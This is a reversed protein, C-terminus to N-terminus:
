QWGGKIADVIQAVEEVKLNFHCPLCVHHADWYRQNPLDQLGGFIDNRDIGNHVVSVPINKGKMMKIFEARKEVLITYLWNASGDHRRVLKVDYLHDDYYECLVKRKRKKAFWGNQLNGLGIAAVVDNMHYKYGVGHLNYQREGTGDPVDLERDIGFWRLQRALTEDVASKCVLAGGDGTTLHKIAQFSFCSYDGWHTVPMQHYDAGLAQANDQILFINKDKNCLLDLEDLECPNGGWAVCIIAKTKSTIKTLVSDVSLNGTERDIDAFICKAGCYLVAMGTAVFTQAPLIVEDGPKVGALILALHLASTGSNLAVSGVYGFTADLTKEFQKVMKGESLHGSSLVEQVLEKARPTIVTNFFDM